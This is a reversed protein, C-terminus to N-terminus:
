RAAFHYVAVVLEDFVNIRVILCDVIENNGHIRSHTFRLAGLKRWRQAEVKNAQLGDRASSTCGRKGIRGSVHSVQVGHGVCRCRHVTLLRQLPRTWTRRVCAWFKIGRPPGSTQKTAKGSVSIEM